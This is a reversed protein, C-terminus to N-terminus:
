IKIKNRVKKIIDSIRMKEITIKSDNNYIKYIFKYTKNKINFIINNNLFSFDIIGTKNKLFIRFKYEFVNNIGSHEYKIIKEYEFRYDENNLLKDDIEYNFNKIIGSLIPNSEYELKNITVIPLTKFKIGKLEFIAAKISDNLFSLRMIETSDVKILMKKIKNLYKKQEDIKKVNPILKSENIRWRLTNLFLNKIYLKNPYKKFLDEYYDSYRNFEEEIMSYNKTCSTDIKRYYYNPNSCYGFKSKKMIISTAFKEDESFKLNEDFEIGLNNKICINITTQILESYEDIDYIMNNKSYLKSYRFHSSLKGDKYNLLPYTVLDILEYNDEFFLFLEKCLNDSVFDDSDLFVVYKGKAQKLGNNRAISVGQNKQNILNINNREAYQQCIELSNDSSGDNILIIEIKSM